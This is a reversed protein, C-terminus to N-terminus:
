SLLGAKKLARFMLELLLSMFPEYRVLDAVLSPLKGAEELKTALDNMAEIVEKKKEEGEGERETALMFAALAVVIQAVGKIYSLMGIGGKLKPEELEQEEDTLNIGTGPVARARNLWGDKFVELDSNQRILNLYHEKTATILSSLLVDSGVQNSAKVTEPGLLGDVAVGEGLDTLAQQLIRHATGPGVHVALDFVKTAVEPPLRHGNWTKDYRYREWWDERYIKIADERRLNGIDLDPYARKSIGYNTEGGPDNPHNVYGGEQKLVFEVAQKFLESCM